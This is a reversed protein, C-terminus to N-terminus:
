HSTAIDSDCINSKQHNRIKSFLPSFTTRFQHMAIYLDELQPTMCYYPYAKDAHSLAQCLAGLAPSSDPTPVTTRLSCAVIYYFLM